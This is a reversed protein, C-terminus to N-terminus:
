SGSQLVERPYLHTSLCSSLTLSLFLSLSLYQNVSEGLCTLLTSASFDKVLRYALVTNGLLSAEIHLQQTFSNYGAWETVVTM